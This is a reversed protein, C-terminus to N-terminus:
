WWIHMTYYEDKDAKDYTAIYGYDRLKNAVYVAEHYDNFFYFTSYNGDEASKRVEQLVELVKQYGESNEDALLRAEAATLM